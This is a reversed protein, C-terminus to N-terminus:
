PASKEKLCKETVDQFSGIKSIVHDDFQMWCDYKESYFYAIYHELGLVVMGRFIYKTKMSKDVRFV